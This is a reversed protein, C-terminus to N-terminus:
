IGALYGSMGFMSFSNDFSRMKIMALVWKKSSVYIESIYFVVAIVTSGGVRYPLRCLLLSTQLCLCITVLRCAVETARSLNNLNGYKNMAMLDQGM